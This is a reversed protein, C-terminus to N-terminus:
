AAPRETRYDTIGEPIGARGQPLQQHLDGQARDRLDAPLAHILAFGMDEEPGQVRVGKRQGERVEGPNSGMFVPGAAIGKGASITFNLSLHHGEVRWGWNGEPGPKGFISFAYNEPDRKKTDKEMAALVEELSMITMANAYGRQSLGSALLAHALERQPQTMQKWTLGRRERPIFHWNMREEDSFEFGATKQQEPTLDNWLNTAAHAMEASASVIAAESPPKVPTPAHEAAFSPAAVVALGLLTIIKLRNGLVGHM